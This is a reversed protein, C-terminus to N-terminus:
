QRTVPKMGYKKEFLASYAPFNSQKLKNLEERSFDDWRKGTVDIKNAGGPLGTDTAVSKKSHLKVYKRLNDLDLSGAIERHEESLETLLEDRLSSVLTKLHESDVQYKKLEDEKQKLITEYEGKEELLKQKRQEELTEYEKLKGKVADRDQFAKKAEGKFYELQRQIEELTLSGSQQQQEPEGGSASQGDSSQETNDAM